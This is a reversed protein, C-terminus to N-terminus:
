YCVRNKDQESNIGAGSDGFTINFDPAPCFSTGLRSCRSGSEHNEKIEGSRELKSKLKGILEFYTRIASVDGKTAMSLLSSTVRAQNVLLAEDCQRSFWSRFEPKKMNKYFRQRRVGSVTEAKSKNGSVDDTLLAQVFQRLAVSPQYTYPKTDDEERM